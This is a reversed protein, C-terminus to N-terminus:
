RFNVPVQEEYYRVGPLEIGAKMANRIKVEDPLVYEHPLMTVDMVEFKQITKFKVMGAETAVQEAPRDIEQMKQVATDVKLKGKGEGVRNAIKAAEADAIRKQETQYTTMAGRIASIADELNDELPRFMERAEKLALNLPKTIKEKQEKVKDAYKNIVSLTQTANIMHQASEIKVKVAAKVVPGIEKELVAIEQTNTKSM